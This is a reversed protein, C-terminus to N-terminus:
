TGLGNFTTELINPQKHKLLEQYIEETLHKGAMNKIYHYDLNKHRGRVIEELTIRAMVTKDADENLSSFVLKALSDLFVYLTTEKM